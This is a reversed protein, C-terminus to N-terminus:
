YVNVTGKSLELRTQNEKELITLIDARLDADIRYIFEIQQMVKPDSNLM